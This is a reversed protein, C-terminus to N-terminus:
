ASLCGTKRVVLPAITTGALKPWCTAQPLGICVQMRVASRVLALKQGGEAIKMCLGGLSASWTRAAASRRNLGVPGVSSYARRISPGRM